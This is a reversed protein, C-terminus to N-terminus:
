NETQRMARYAEWRPAAMAPSSDYGDTIMDGGCLVLDARQANIAAAAQALAEPTDWETRAHIDTFFVVKLPRDATAPAPRRWGPWALGGGLAAAGLVLFLSM